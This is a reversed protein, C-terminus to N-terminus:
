KGNNEVEVIAETEVKQKLRRRTELTKEAAIDEVEAKATIGSPRKTLKVRIGDIETYWRDLINRIQIQRR